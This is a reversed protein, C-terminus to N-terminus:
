NENLTLGICALMYTLIFAAAIVGTDNVIFVTLGTFILIKLSIIISPQRVALLALRDQAKFRTIILLIIAVIFVISWNSNYVTNVLIGLKTRIISFFVQFGGTLLSNIAKGAHSPNQSFLYDVEAVAVVGLIAIIGLVLLMKLNIKRKTIVLLFIGLTVLSTILGGVNAGFNPHGIAIAVIGIYIFGILAKILKNFNFHDILLTIFIVSSALLIGMFDNGVGYYRGGAIADSGLPSLLMLKSSNFCDITLFLSTIGTIILLASIPKLIAQLLFGIALSSIITILISFTLSNYNTYSIFMWTIPILLISYILSDLLEYSYRISIKHRNVLLWLAITFLILCIFVLHLPNRNARLNQYLKVQKDLVSISNHGTKGIYAKNGNATYDAELYNFITPIIDLNTILGARRTTASTLLGAPEGPEYIILPTLGFNNNRLMERHPNPTMILLMTNQQDIEDWIAGILLDNQEIAKQRQHYVIDDATAFRCREVRSTDGLDIIMLQSNAIYKKFSELITAHNTKLGGAVSSDYTTMKRSVDGQPIVGNEDSALIAIGRDFTGYTDANGLVTVIFHNDRSIKGIQGMEYPPNYLQSNKNINEAYLNVISNDPPTNGSFLSYLEQATVASNSNEFINPLNSVLEDSNFSLESNNITGVRYGVAISMYPSTPYRNKARINMLGTGSKKILLDLNPTNALLLDETDIYDMVLIVVKKDNIDASAESLAPNFLILILLTILITPLKNM